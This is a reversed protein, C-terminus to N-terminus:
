GGSSLLTSIRMPRTLSLHMPRWHIDEDAPDFVFADTELERLVAELGAIIERAEDEALVGARSLGRAWAMSGRIDENYLRVDFSLSANFQHALSDTAKTFRTGWLKM